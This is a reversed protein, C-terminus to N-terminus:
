KVKKCGFAASPGCLSNYFYESVRKELPWLILVTSLGAALLALLLAALSRGGRRLKSMKFGSYFTEITLILFGVTTGIALLVHPLQLIEPDLEPM